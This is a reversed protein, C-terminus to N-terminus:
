LVNVGEIKNNEMSNSLTHAKGVNSKPYSIHDVRFYNLYFM